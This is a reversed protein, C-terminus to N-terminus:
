QKAVPMDHARPTNAQSRYSESEPRIVIGAMDHDVLMKRWRCDADVLEILRSRWCGTVFLPDKVGQAEGGEGAL